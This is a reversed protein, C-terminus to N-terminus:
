STVIRPGDNAAHQKEIASLEEIRSWLEAFILSATEHHGRICLLLRTDDPAESLTMPVVQVGGQVAFYDFLESLKPDAPLSKEKDKM